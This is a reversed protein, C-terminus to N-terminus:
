VTAKHNRQWMAIHYREFDEVGLGLEQGCDLLSEFCLSGHPSFLRSFRYFDRYGLAKTRVM